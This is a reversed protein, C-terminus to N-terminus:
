QNKNYVDWLLKHNWIQAEIFPLYDDPINGWWNDDPLGKEEIMTLIESLMFVKGHYKAQYYDSSKDRGLIYSFMSDFFTFCIDNEGFKTLPLQIKLLNEDLMKDEISDCVDLIMYIPYEEQPLGGKSVFKKILWEETERRDHLYQVPNKFRGWIADDTNNKYLEDMIQIAEKDTLTSLSGFPPTGKKHYYTLNIM